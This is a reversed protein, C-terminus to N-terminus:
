ANQYPPATWTAGLHSAYYDNWVEGNPLIVSLMNCDQFRSVRADPKWVLPGCFIAVSACDWPGWGYATENYVLLQHGPPGLACVGQYVQNSTGNRPGQGPDAVAHLTVIGPEVQFVDRLWAGNKLLPLECEYTWTANGKNWVAWDFPPKDVEVFPLVSTV